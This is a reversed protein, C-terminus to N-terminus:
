KLWTPCPCMSKIADHAPVRTVKDSNPVIKDREKVAKLILNADMMKRGGLPLKRGTGLYSNVFEKSINVMTSADARSVEYANSLDQAESTAIKTTEAIINAFMKRSDAYPSYDGVKGEKSYIGVQYTPDNLMARMVTIEDKRSSSKQNVKDKIESITARANEM